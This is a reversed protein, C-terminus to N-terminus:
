LIIGSCVKRIDCFLFNSLLFIFFFFENDLSFIKLAFSKFITLNTSKSVHKM